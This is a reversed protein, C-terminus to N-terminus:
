EGLSASAEELVPSGALFMKEIGTRRQAFEGRHGHFRRACRESEPIAEVLAEAFRGEGVDLTVAEEASFDRFFRLFRESPSQWSESQGRLITCPTAYSVFRNRSLCNRMLLRAVEAQVSTSGLGGKEPGQAQGRNVKLIPKPGM